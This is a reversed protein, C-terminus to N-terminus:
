YKTNSVVAIYYYTSAPKDIVTTRININPHLISDTDRYESFRLIKM